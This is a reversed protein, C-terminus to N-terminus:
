GAALKTWFVQLYGVSSFWLRNVLLEGAIRALWLLIILVIAAIIWWALVSRGPVKPPPGTIEITMIRDYCFRAAAVGNKTTIRRRGTCHLGCSSGDDKTPKPCSFRM